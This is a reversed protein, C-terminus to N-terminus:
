QTSEDMAWGANLLITVQNKHRDNERRLNELQRKLSEIDGELEGIRRVDSVKADYGSGDKFRISVSEVENSQYSM